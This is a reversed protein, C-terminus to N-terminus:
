WMILIECAREKLCVELGMFSPKGEGGEDKEEHHVKGYAHL